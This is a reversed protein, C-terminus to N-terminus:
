GRPHWRGGCSGSHAGSPGAIFAGATPTHHIGDRGDTAVRELFKRCAARMARLSAALESNIGDVKGLEDSLSHPIEILSHVCHSPVEMENSEYLVRRGELLAIV